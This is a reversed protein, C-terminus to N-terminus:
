RIGEKRPDITDPLCYFTHSNRHYDSSVVIFRYPVTEFKQKPNKEQALRNKVEEFLRKQNELCQEYKQTAEVFIWFENHKVNGSTFTALELLEWLVWACQANAITSMFLCFIVTLFIKKM